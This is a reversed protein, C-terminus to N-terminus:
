RLRIATLEFTRTPRWGTGATTDPSEFVGGTATALAVSYRERLRSVVRGTSDMTTVTTPIVTITHGSVTETQLQGTEYRATRGGSLRLELSSNPAIPRSARLEGAAESWTYM